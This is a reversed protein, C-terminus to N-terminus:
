LIKNYICAATSPEVIVFYLYKKEKRTPLTVTEWEEAMRQSWAVDVDQYKEDFRLAFVDISHGKMDDPIPVRVVVTTENGTKEEKMKEFSSLQVRGLIRSYSQGTAVSVAFLKKQVKNMKQYPKDKERYGVANIRVGPRKCKISINMKQGTNPGPNFFLEYYAATSENLAAVLPKIYQDRLSSVPVKQLVSGGEHVEKVMDNEFGLYSFLRHPLPNKVFSDDVQGAFGESLLFTVKPNDITRLANKFQEFADLYMKVTDRRANRMGDEMLFRETDLGDHHTYESRQWWVLKQPNKRLKDLHELFKEGGPEPGAIYKLGGLRIELLVFRDQPAGNEILQRAIAKSNKLGLPTNFLADVIIFKLRTVQNVPIPKAKVEAAPQAEEKEKEIPMEMDGFAMSYLYQIKVSKGNVELEFEEQKLDFVPRGRSDVALFPVQLATVPVDYQLPIHEQYQDRDTQATLPSPSFFTVFVFLFIFFFELYKKLRNSKLVNKM